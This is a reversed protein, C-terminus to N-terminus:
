LFDEFDGVKAIYNDFYLRVPGFTTNELTVITLARVMNPDVAPLKRAATLAPTTVAV